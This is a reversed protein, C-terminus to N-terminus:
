NKSSDTKVPTVSVPTQTVTQAPPSNLPAGVAIDCRHGPQGHAPNMGAAVTQTAPQTNIKVPTQTTNTVTPQAPASNLPAGVSIDCRHGPEGHAPNLKGSATVPAVPQVTSTQPNINVANTQPTINVPTTTGPIVTTAAGNSVVPQVTKNESAPTVLSKDIYDKSDNGACSIFTSISIFAAASYLKLTMIKNKLIQLKCINSPFAITIQIRDSITVCIDIFIIYFNSTRCSIIKQRQQWQNIIVVGSV